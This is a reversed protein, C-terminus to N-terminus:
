LHAIKDCFEYVKWSKSVNTVNQHWPKRVKGAMKQPSFILFFDSKSHIDSSHCDQWTQWATAKAIEPPTPLAARFLSISSSLVWNAATVTICSLSKWQICTTYMCCHHHLLSNHQWLMPSTKIKGNQSLKLWQQSSCFTSHKPTRTFHPPSPHSM